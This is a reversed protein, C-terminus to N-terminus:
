NIRFILNESIEMIFKNKNQFFSPYLQISIFRLIHFSCNIRRTWDFYVLHAKPRKLAIKRFLIKLLTPKIQTPRWKVRYHLSMLTLKFRGNVWKRFISVSKLKPNFWREMQGILFFVKVRYNEFRPLVHYIFIVM